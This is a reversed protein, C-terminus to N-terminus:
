SHLAADIRAIIKHLRTVKDLSRHVKIDYYFMIFKWCPRRGAHTAISFIVNTGVDHTSIVWRFTIAKVSSPGTVM